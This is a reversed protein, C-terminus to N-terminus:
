EQHAQRYRIFAAGCEGCRGIGDSGAPTGRLDHGCSLCRVAREYFRALGGRYVRVVVALLLLYLSFDISNTLPQPLTGIARAARMAMISESSAASRQLLLNYILPTAFILAFGCLLTM